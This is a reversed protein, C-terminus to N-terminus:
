ENPELYEKKFSEYKNPFFTKVFWPLIYRSILRVLVMTIVVIGFAKLLLEIM